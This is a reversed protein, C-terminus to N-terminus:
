SQAGIMFSVEGGDVSADLEKDDLVEAAAPEVCVEVDEGQVVQDEPPKSGTISVALGADEQSSIRLVAGDPVNDSDLIGRIAQSAQPTITMM